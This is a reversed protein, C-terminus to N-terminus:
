TKHFCGYSIYSYRNFFWVDNFELVGQSTTVKFSQGSLTGIVLPFFWFLPSNRGSLMGQCTWLTVVETPSPGGVVEWWGSMKLFLPSKFPSVCLMKTEVVEGGAVGDCTTSLVGQCSRWSLSTIFVVTRYKRTKSGVIKEYKRTSSKMKSRPCTFEIGGYNSEIKLKSTEPKCLDSQNPTEKTFILIPGQPRRPRREAM